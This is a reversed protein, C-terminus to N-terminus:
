KRVYVEFDMYGRYFDTPWGYDASFYKGNIATKGTFYNLADQTYKVRTELITSDVLCRQNSNLVFEAQEDNRLLELARRKVTAIQNEHAFDGWQMRGLIAIEEQYSNWHSKGETDINKIENRLSSCTWRDFVSMRPVVLFSVMLVLVVGIAISKKKDLKYHNDRTGSRMAEPILSLSQEESEEFTDKFTKDLKGGFVNLYSLINKWFLLLLLIISILILGLGATTQSFNGSQDLYCQTVLSRAGGGRFSVSICNPDGLIDMGTFLFTGSGLLAIIKWFM